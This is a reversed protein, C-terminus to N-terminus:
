RLFAFVEYEYGLVLIYTDAKIEVLKRDLCCGRLFYGEEYEFACGAANWNTMMLVLDDFDFISDRRDSMCKQLRYASNVGHRVQSLEEHSNM